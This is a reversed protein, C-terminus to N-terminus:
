EIRGLIHSRNLPSTLNSLTEQYNPKTLMDRLYSSKILSLNDPTNKITQALLSLKQVLEVQKILDKLQSGIGACLAELMIGFRFKHKLSKM